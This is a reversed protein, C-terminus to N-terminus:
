LRVELVRPTVEGDRQLHLLPVSRKRGGGAANLWVGCKALQKPIEAKVDDLCCVHGIAVHRVDAGAAELIDVQKLAADMPIPANVVRAGTYPHHTFLPLGTRAQAKGVVTFM